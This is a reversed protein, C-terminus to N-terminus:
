KVSLQRTASGKDTRIRVLYLGQPFDATNVVLQNGGETTQRSFVTQGLANVICVEEIAEDAEVVMRDTAPNPYLSLTAGREAEAIGVVQQLNRSVAANLVPCNNIDAADYQYVFAVVKCHRYNYAEPLTYQFPHVFNMDEDNVALQDGWMNTIAARVTGQHVYNTWNGHSTYDHQEGVIEDEILFITIRTNENWVRDGFRGQVIGSLERTETNYEPNIPLVKCYTPVAKAQGFIGRIDSAEGVSGVPGPKSEDFRTRDVMMAPAFTSGNYFALMARHIDNTLFDEGFGAHHKIWIINTSTGIGSTIRDAGSPCWGCNVTTFQELLINRNFTQMTSEQAYAMCVALSLLLFSLTKKMNIM